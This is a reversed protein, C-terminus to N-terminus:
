NKFVPKIKFHMNMLTLLFCKLDSVLYYLIELGIPDKSNKIDAFTGIKCTSFFIHQKKYIIELEQSGLINNPKPWKKDEQELIKSELIIRKVEDLIITNVYVEKRILNESKYNSNNAYRVRGEKTFEFEIFEYGYEGKHGANYRLYFDNDANEITKHNNKSINNKEKKSFNEKINEKNKSHENNKEM